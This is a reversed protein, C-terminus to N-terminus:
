FYYYFFVFHIFIMKALYHRKFIPIFYIPCLHGAWSNGLGFIFRYYRHARCAHGPQKWVFLFFICNNNGKLCVKQRKVIDFTWRLSFLSPIEDFYKWKNFIEMLLRFNRKRKKKKSPPLTSQPVNSMWGNWEDYILFLFFIAINSYNLRRDEDIAFNQYSFPFFCENTEPENLERLLLSNIPSFLSWYLLCFIQFYLYRPWLSISVVNQCDTEHRSRSPFRKFVNLFSFRCDSHM